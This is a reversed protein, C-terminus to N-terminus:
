WCAKQQSKTKCSNSSLNKMSKSNLSSVFNGKFIKKIKSDFSWKKQRPSLSFFLFLLKIVFSFCSAFVFNFKSFCFSFILIHSFDLVVEFGSDYFFSHFYSFLVVCFMARQNSMFLHIFHLNKSKFNFTVSLHSFVTSLFCIIKYSASNMHFVKSKYLVNFFLTFSVFCNAKRYAFDDHFSVKLDM